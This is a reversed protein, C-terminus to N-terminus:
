SKTPNLTLSRNFDGADANDYTFSIGQTTEYHEEVQRCIVTVTDGRQAADHSVHRCNRDTCSGETFSRRAIHVISGDLFTPYRLVNFEQRTFGGPIVQELLMGRKRFLRALEDGVNENIEPEFERVDPSDLQNLTLNRNFGGQDQDDYLFLRHSSVEILISGDPRRPRAAEYLTRGGLTGVRRCVLSLSDGIEMADHSEHRCNSTTCSGETFSRRKIRVVSKDLFDPCRGLVQFELVDFDHPPRLWLLARYEALLKRLADGFSDSVSPEFERADPNTVEQLVLNRNFHGRPEDDYEFLVGADSEYLPRGGLSGVHHCFVTITDGTEEPSHSEHNCTPSTCAGETFTGQTSDLVSGGLFGPRQLVNFDVIPFPREM